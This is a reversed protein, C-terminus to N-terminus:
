VRQIRRCHQLSLSFWRFCLLGLVFSFLFLFLSLPSVKPCAGFVTISLFRCLLVSVRVTRSAVAPTVSGFRLVKKNTTKNSHKIKRTIKAKQKQIIIQAGSTYRMRYVTTRSKGDSTLLGCPAAGEYYSGLALVKGKPARSPLMATVQRSAEREKHSRQLIEEVVPGFTHGPSIYAELLASKDVDLVRGLLGSPSHEQLREACLGTAAQLVSSGGSFRPVGSFAPPKFSSYLSVNNLRQRGPFRSSNPPESWSCGFHAQPLPRMLKLPLRLASVWKRTRSRADQNEESMAEDQELPVLDVVLLPLIPGMAPALPPAPAPAPNISQQM